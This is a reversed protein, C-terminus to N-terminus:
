FSLESYRVKFNMAFTDSTDSGAPGVCFWVVDGKTLQGLSLPSLLFGLGPQFLGTVRLSMGAASQVYILVVGGNTGSTAVSSVSADLVGYYGDVKAQYGAIVFRDAAVGQSTGRGPHGGTANLAGFPSETPVTEPYALGFTTYQNSGPHFNLPRYGSPVGITNAENWCYQWGPKPGNPQFDAGYEAVVRITQGAVVFTITTTAGGAPTASLTHTGAALVIASTPILYPSTVPTVALADLTLAVSGQASELNARFRYSNTGLRAPDITAGAQLEMLEKGSTGDLVTFTRVIAPGAFAPFVLPDLPDGGVATTITTPPQVGNQGQVLGAPILGFLKAPPQSPQRRLDSTLVTGNYTLASTHLGGLGGSSHCSACFSNQTTNPRPANHFLPGEPFHLAERLLTVNAPPTASAFNDDTYDFLCAYPGAPTEGRNKLEADIQGHTWAPFRDAFKVRLAGSYNALGVLTGGAHNCATEPDVTHALVKFDDIWGRFGTQPAASKGVTLDGATMQFLATQCSQWRSYPLGDLLFEVAKGSRRIQFALHAWGAQPLLDDMITPFNITDVAPLTIRNVVNGSADAYLVQQRGYLRISTNDPFTILRREVVDNPNASRCDVFLSVYWESRGVQGSGQAPVTFRLGISGDLWFGKGHIGGVAAPEVRGPGTVLGHTPVAWQSTAAANQLKVVGALFQHSSTDWGTHHYLENVVGPTSAPLTLLGTMNAVVLADPDLFDDFVLTDTQRSNNLHWVVDHFAKPKALTRYNFKNELSDIINGNDNEGLPMRQTARGYGIPLDNAGAMGSPGNFLTVLRQQPGLNWATPHDPLVPPAVVGDGTGVAYDTDNNLNDIQVMKGRTWLGLVTIGQHLGSDEQADNATTFYYAWPDGPVPNQNYRGHNWTGGSFYHLSDHIGEFFLNKAGRDIWPYSGGIDAGDAIWNGEADRFQSFAFPFQQYIPTDFHAHSIPRLTTWQTVDVSEVSAGADYYSYVIDAAVTTLGFPLATAFVRFVLLRGDGAIVPEFGSADFPFIQGVTTTTNPQRVVSAITANATKPNSVTIRIPTVCLRTYRNLGSNTNCTVLVKVDYIDQGGSSTPGADDWLCAHAVPGNNGTFQAHSAVPDSFSRLWAATQNSMTFSGPASTLLPAGLKEPNMLIFRPTGNVGDGGEVIIGIRGDQTTRIAPVHPRTFQPNSPIAGDIVGRVERWIAPIEPMVQAQGTLASLAFLSVLATHTARM